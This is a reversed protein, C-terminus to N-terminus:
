VGSARVYVLRTFGRPDSTDRTPDRVFGLREYLRQAALMTPQTWLVLAKAGDSAAREICARVLAEGVGAGRAAPHVALVRFEREGTRALQKLSSDENLYLVGGMVRESDNIAILFTGEPELRERRQMEAARTGDTYGEGVYVRHLLACAESWEHETIAPRITANM